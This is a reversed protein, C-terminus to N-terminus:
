STLSNGMWRAHGSGYAVFSTARFIFVVMHMLVISVVMRMPVISMVMHMPVISVVMRMLSISMVMGLLKRPLGFIAVHLQSFVQV